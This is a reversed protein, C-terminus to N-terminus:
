GLHVEQFHDDFGIGEIAVFDLSRTRELGVLSPNFAM